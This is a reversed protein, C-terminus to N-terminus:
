PTSRASELSKIHLKDGIAIVALTLM